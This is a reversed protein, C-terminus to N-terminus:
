PVRSPRRAIRLRDIAEAMSWCREPEVKPIDLGHEALEHERRAASGDHLATMSAGDAVRATFRCGGARCPFGSQSPLALV